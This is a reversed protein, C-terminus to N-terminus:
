RRRKKTKKKPKQKVFRYTVATCSTNLKKGGKGKISLNKINVIRSLRSVKDFFIALNQYGGTVKIAVPIEAYYQKNVEKKPQFLQFELQADRGAQSISTLLDPIDKKEPLTRKVIAFQAKAADMKKEVAKLQKAKKTVKDLQKELREHKTKLESITKQKENFSVFYFLVVLVIITGFYIVYRQVKTLEGIKEVVSEFVGGSENSKKM